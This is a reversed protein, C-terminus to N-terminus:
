EFSSFKVHLITIKISPRSKHCFNLRVQPYERHSSCEITTKAPNHGAATRGDERKRHRACSHWCGADTERCLGQSLQFAMMLRRRRKVVVVNPLARTAGQFEWAGEPGAQETPPQSARELDRTHMPEKPERESHWHLPWSGMIQRLRLLQASSLQIKRSIHSIDEKGTQPQSLPLPLFCLAHIDTSYSTDIWCCKM